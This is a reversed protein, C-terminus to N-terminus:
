KRSARTIKEELNLQSFNILRKWIETKEIDIEPQNEFSIPYGSYKSEFIRYFISEIITDSSNYLLIEKYKKDGFFERVRPGLKPINRPRKINLIKELEESSLIKKIKLAGTKKDKYKIKHSNHDLIDYAVQLTDYFNFEKMIDMELNLLSSRRLIKPIDYGGCNSWGEIKKCKLEPSINHGIITTNKNFKSFIEKLYSLLLREERTDTIGFCFTPFNNIIKDLKSPSVFSLSFSVIPGDKLEKTDLTEIDLTVYSYNNKEIFKFIDERESSIEIM